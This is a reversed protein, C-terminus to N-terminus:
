SVRVPVVTLFRRAMGYAEAVSNRYQCKVLDGAACTFQKSRSVSTQLNAGGTDNSVRAMDNDSAAAAGIKPSVASWRGNGCSPLDAGYHLIYEGQRPITFQPTPAVDIYSTSNIAAGGDVNSIAPAGGVFEWKNTQSSGANYRFRWTYTPATLSDVLIAEQGDVPSGPLTTAYTPASAKAALAAVLGSVDAQTIDSWVMAGGVGKLWKGNVVTPVSPGALSGWLTTDPAVTTDGGVCVFTVGDKVVVDGDHYTGAVWDGKYVLEAKAAVAAAAAAAAADAAAVGAEIKNLNAANEPTVGDVWTTPSYPM